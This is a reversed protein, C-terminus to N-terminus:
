EDYFGGRFNTEIYKKALHQFFYRNVDGNSFDICMLSYKVVEQERKSASLIVEYLIEAEIFHTLGGVDVRYVQDKLGKEDIFRGLWTTTDIM